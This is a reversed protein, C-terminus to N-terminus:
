VRAIEDLTYGTRTLRGEESVWEPGARPIDQCGGEWGDRKTAFVDRGSRGVEDEFLSAGRLTPRLLDAM